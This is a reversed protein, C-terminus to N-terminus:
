SESLCPAWQYKMVYVAHLIIFGQHLVHFCIVVSVWILLIVSTRDVLWNTHKVLIVDTLQIYLLCHWHVVSALSMQCICAATLLQFLLLSCVCVFVFIVWRWVSSHSVQWCILRPSSIKCDPLIQRRSLTRCVFSGCQIFIRAKREKGEPHSYICLSTHCGVTLTSAWSSLCLGNCM